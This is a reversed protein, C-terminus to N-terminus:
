EGAHSTARWAGAPDGLHQHCEGCDSGASKRGGSHDRGSVHDAMPAYAPHCAANDCIGAGDDRVFDLDEGSPQGDAPDLRPTAYRLPVPAAAVEPKAPAYSGPPKSARPLMFRNDGANEAHEDHCDLCGAGPSGEAKGRHPQSASHCSYCIGVQANGLATGADWSQLPLNLGFRARYREQPTGEAPRRVHAVREPSTDTTDLSVHCSTCRLKMGVVHSGNGYSVQGGRYRYTSEAAGHGSTLYAGDADGAFHCLSTCDASVVAQDGERGDNFLRVLGSSHTDHCATCQRDGGAVTTRLPTGDAELIPGAEADAHSALRVSRGKVPAAAAGHCSRCFGDYRGPATVGRLMFPNAARAPDDPPAHDVYSGEAADPALLAPDHCDVCDLEGPTASGVTSLYEGFSERGTEFSLGVPHKSPKQGFASLADRMAANAPNGHCYTCGLREPVTGGSYARILLLTRAIKNIMSTAPDADTHGLTHCSYCGNGEDVFHVARAAPPAALLALAAAAAAARRTAPSM